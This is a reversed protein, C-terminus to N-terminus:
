TATVPLGTLHILVDTASTTAAELAYGILVNGTASPTASKSGSVYYVKDGVAFSKGTGTVKTVRITGSIALLVDETASTTQRAVGYVDNSVYIKGKTTGGTPSTIIVDGSFEERDGVAATM